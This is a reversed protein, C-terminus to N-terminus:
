IKKTIMITKIKKNRMMKTKTKIFYYSVFFILSSFLFYLSSEITSIDNKKQYHIYNKLIVSSTIVLCLLIFKSLYEIDNKPNEIFLIPIFSIIGAFFYIFSYALVISSFQHRNYHIKNMLDEETLFKFNSISIM